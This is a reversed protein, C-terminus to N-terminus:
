VSRRNSFASRIPGTHRSTADLDLLNIVHTAFQESRREAAFAYTTRFNVSTPSTQLEEVVRPPLISMHRTLTKIDISSHGSISCAEFTAIEAAGQRPLPLHAVEHLRIHIKHRPSAISTVYIVDQDPETVCVGSLEPGLEAEELVLTRGRVRGYAEVVEMLSAGAKLGLDDHFM